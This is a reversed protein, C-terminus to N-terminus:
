MEEAIITQLIGAEGTIEIIAEKISAGCPFCAATWVASNGNDGRAYIDAGSDKLKNFMEFSKKQVALCIPTNGGATVKDIFENLLNNGSLFILLNHLFNLDEKQIASHLLNWSGDSAVESILSLDEELSEIVQEATKHGRLYDDVISM